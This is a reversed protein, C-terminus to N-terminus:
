GLVGTWRLAAIETASCGLVGRLVADTDTGLSPAPGLVRGFSARWPLGPIVGDRYADWFGRRRLCLRGRITRASAEQDHNKKRGIPLPVNAASLPPYLAENM